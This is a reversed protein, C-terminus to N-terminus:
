ATSMASMSNEGGFYACITLVIWRRMLSPVYGRPDTRGDSFRWKDALEAYGPGSDDPRELDQLALSPDVALM